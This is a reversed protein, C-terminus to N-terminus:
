NRRASVLAASSADVCYLHAVKPAIVSAWRGSGCGFDAGISNSSLVSWPFIAFYEAFIRAKMEDSLATQDFRSWEDGFGAAVKEDVNTRAVESGKHLWDNSCRRTSPPAKMCPSSQPQARARRRLTANMSRNM